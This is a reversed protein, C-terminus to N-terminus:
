KKYIYKVPHYDMLNSEWGGWKATDVLHQSVYFFLPIIAQDELVLMNEAEQLVAYREAGDPMSAAKEILADYEENAYGVDNMAAGSVFMDLFTNPDQYDGVWGARALEFNHSDRNANYTAWEQNELTVEINLNEKFQAQIFEAIAKHNDDTNYLISITPFGVGNPYGAEALLEQALEPDFRDDGLGEYGQMPPVIGWCPIQGAKLVSDVLAYRDIAYALAKRVRVDNLPAKDINISYYYTSLQPSAQYENSMMISDLLDAPVTTCWDVQGAQFMIYNTNIDDSALYIVEDLSVADKDWYTSSKECVIKNQPAWEKLVFPGNGVFNGPLTWEDGHAEIAQRPVIAFTYHTLANLVYPFPGILEMTFTREDIAAIKVADAGAESANYEAAGAIFMAPFWAYPSATEPALERLWSYVVDDATIKTGDSWLADDRLTFTYTLGDDSIQWSEAVGPVPQGNEDTSVLGEFLAEFIRHEVTGQMQAPDLSMPESGNAITFTLPEETKGDDDTVSEEAIAKSSSTELSAATNEKTCSTLFLFAALISLLTAIYKGM